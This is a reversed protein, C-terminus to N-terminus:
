RNQLRPFPSPSVAERIDNLLVGYNELINNIDDPSQDTPIILSRNNIAALFKSNQKLLEDIANIKSDTGFAPDVLDPLLTECQVTYSLYDEYSLSLSDRIENLQIAYNALTNSIQKPLLNHPISLSDTNIATALRSNQKLLEDIANIKDDDRFAPDKLQPLLIECQETYSLYEEYSVISM